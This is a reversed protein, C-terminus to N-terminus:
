QKTTDSTATSGFVHFTIFTRTKPHQCDNKNWIKQQQQNEQQLKPYNIHLHQKNKHTGKKKPPPPMKKNKKSNNM